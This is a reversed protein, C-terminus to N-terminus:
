SSKSGNRGPIRNMLRSFEHKTTAVVEALHSPALHLTEWSLPVFPPHRYNGSGSAGLGLSHSIIYACHVINEHLTPPEPGRDELLQYHAIVRQITPALKWARALQQGTHEHSFGFVKQEAAQITLRETAALTLAARFQEPFCQNHVFKGIDHLLGAVYFEEPQNFWVMEGFNTSSM